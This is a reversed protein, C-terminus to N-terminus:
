RYDDRPPHFVDQVRCDTIARGSHPVNGPIVAVKGPALVQAQGAVTLEFEGEIVIVMQEHPHAHEPLASGADVQWFALTLHDTHIFRGQFGPMIERVEIEELNKFM